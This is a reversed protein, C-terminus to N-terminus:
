FYLTFVDHNLNDKTYHRNFSCSPLAAVKWVLPSDPDKDIVTVSYRRNLLYVGDDAYLSDIDDRSYVIAPYQMKVTEPPQFYAHNSQLIDCLIKHLELRKKM